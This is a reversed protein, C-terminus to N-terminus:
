SIRVPGYTAPLHFLQGMYEQELRFIGRDGSEEEDLLPCVTLHGTRGKHSTGGLVSSGLLLTHVDTSPTSPELVLALPNSV